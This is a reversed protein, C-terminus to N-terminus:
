LFIDQLMVTLTLVAVLALISAFELIEILVKLRGENVDKVAHSIKM